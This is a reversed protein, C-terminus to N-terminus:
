AQCLCTLVEQLEVHNNMAGTIGPYEGTDIGAAQKPKVRYM